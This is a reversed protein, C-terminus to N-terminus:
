VEESEGTPAELASQLAAMMALLEDRSKGEAAAALTNENVLSGLLANNSNDGTEMDRGECIRAEVIASRLKGGLERTLGVKSGSLDGIRAAVKIDTDSVTAFVRSGDESTVIIKAMTNKGKWESKMYIRWGNPM